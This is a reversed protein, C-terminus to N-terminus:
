TKKNFKELYDFSYLLKKDGVLILYPCFQYKDIELIVGIEKKSILDDSWVYVLDHIKHVELREDSLISTKM